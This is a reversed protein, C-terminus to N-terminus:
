HVLRMFDLFYKPYSICHNNLLHKRIVLLVGMEVRTISIEKLAKLFSLM